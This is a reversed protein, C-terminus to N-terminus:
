IGIFENFEWLSLCLQNRGQLNWIFYNLNWRIGPIGLAFPLTQEKRAFKMHLLESEWSNMSTVLRFAFNPGEKCIKYSTIWIGVFKQFEWLSRCLQNRGLLNWIFYNQNGPYGPIGFAFQSTPEKRKFKM